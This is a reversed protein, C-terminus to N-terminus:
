NCRPKSIFRKITAAAVTMASQPRAMAFAGTVPEVM